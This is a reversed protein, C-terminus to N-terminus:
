QCDISKYARIRCRGYLRCILRDVAKGSLIQKRKECPLEILASIMFHQWGSRNERNTTPRVWVLEYNCSQGAPSTLAIKRHVTEIALRTPARRSSPGERLYNRMFQNSKLQVPSIYFWLSDMRRAIWHRCVCASPYQTANFSLASVSFM